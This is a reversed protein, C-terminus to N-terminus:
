FLGIDTKQYISSQKQGSGPDATGRMGKKRINTYATSYFKTIILEISSIDGYKIFEQLRRKDVGTM